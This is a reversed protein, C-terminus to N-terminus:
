RGAIELILPTNGTSTVVVPDKHQAFTAREGPELVIDEGSHTLWARGSVIWVSRSLPPLRYVEGKRVTICKTVLVPRAVESVLVSM